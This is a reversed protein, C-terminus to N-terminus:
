IWSIKVTFVTPENWRSHKKKKHIFSLLDKTAHVLVVSCCIPPWKKSFEATNM